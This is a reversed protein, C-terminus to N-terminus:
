SPRSSSEPRDRVPGSPLSAVVTEAPPLQRRRRAFWGPQEPRVQPRPTDSALRDFMSLYKGEIVPWAYNAAYFARGNEGMRSSVAQDDLLAELMAEFVRGNM